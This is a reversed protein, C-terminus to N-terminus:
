VLGKKPAFINPSPCLKRGPINLRIPRGSTTEEPMGERWGYKEIAQIVLPMITPDQSFSDAFYRVAMERVKTGPHLIGKKIEEESLRM